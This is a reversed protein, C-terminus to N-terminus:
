IEGTLSLIYQCIPSQCVKSKKINGKPTTSIGACHTHTHTHKCAQTLTGTDTDICLVCECCQVPCLTPAHAQTHKHQSCASSMSDTHGQSHTHNTYTNAHTHTYLSCARGSAVGPAWLGNGTTCQSLNGQWIRGAGSYKQYAGSCTKGVEPVSILKLNIWFARSPRAPLDIQSPNNVGPPWHCATCHESAKGEKSRWGESERVKIEKEGRCKERRDVGKEKLQKVSTRQLTTVTKGQRGKM